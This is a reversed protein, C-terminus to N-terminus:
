IQEDEFIIKLVINFAGKNFHKLDLRCPMRNRLRSAEAEICPVKEPFAILHSGCDTRKKNTTKAHLFDQISISREPPDIISYHDRFFTESIDFTYLDDGEHAEKPYEFDTTVFGKQAGTNGIDPDISPLAIKAFKLVKSKSKPTPSQGM